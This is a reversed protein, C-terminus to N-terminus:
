KKLLERAIPYEVYYMGHALVWRLAERGGAPDDGWLQQLGTYAKFDALDSNSAPLKKLEALSLKGSLYHVIPMPWETGTLRTEAQDLLKVAAAERHLKRQILVSRIVAYAASSPSKWQSESLYRAYNDLASQYRGMAFYVSGASLFTYAGGSKRTAAYDKLADSYKGMQYELYAQSRIYTTGKPAVRIATQIDALALANKGLHGYASARQDYAEAYKPRMKIAKTFDAIAGAYNNRWTRYLGRFRFINADNPALAAATNLDTMGNEYDKLHYKVYGRELFIDSKARKLEPDVVASPGLASTFDDAAAQYNKLYENARGREYLAPINNPKQALAAGLDAIAEAYKEQEMHIVARDFRAYFTEPKLEIAKDFDQLAHSTEGLYYYAVGRSVYLDPVTADLSLGADADQVSDHYRRLKAYADSRLDYTDATKVGASILANLKPLAEDAHGNKLLVRAEEIEATQATTQGLAGLPSLVALALVALFMPIRM